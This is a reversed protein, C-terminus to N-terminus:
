RAASTGSTRALAGMSEAVAALSGQSAQSVRNIQALAEATAGLGLKMLERRTLNM